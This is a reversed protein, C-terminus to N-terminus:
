TGISIRSVSLLDLVSALYGLHSAFTRGVNLKSQYQYAYSRHITDSPDERRPQVTLTINCVLCDPM